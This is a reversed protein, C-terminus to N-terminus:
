DVRVVVKGGSDVFWLKGDPGLELGALAEAGSKLRALEQKSTLDYAVVDGTGREGVFLRGNALLLGSPQNLGQKFVDAQIGTVVGFDTLGDKSGKKPVFQGGDVAVVLVRGTGPDAVYLQRAAGDFAMHGPVGAVRKLKVDVYRHIAGQSHDSGGPGHDQKFDYRVLDGHLGDFAWFVNGTEHAIGMCLPSEHLMDLHSGEKMGPKWPFEQGVKAFVALDAPWLTPGMFDDEQQPADNWDDRSEQCTAFRDAGAFALSSVTDMFHEGYRDVRAEQTQQAQGPHEVILVGHTEADVVWLRDAGPQFQLDTPRQLGQKVVVLLQRTAPDGFEPVALSAAQARDTATDQAAPTHATDATDTAGTDTGASAAPQQAAPMASCAALAITWAALTPRIM